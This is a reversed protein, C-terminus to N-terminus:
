SGSDIAAKIDALDEYLFAGAHNSSHYSHLRMEGIVTILNKSFDDNEWGWAVTFDKYILVKFKSLDAVLIKGVAINNDEVVTVGAIRTGDSSTFPPLMYVGSNDAKSLEMNAVEIPNLFVVVNGFFNLSRLQAVAARIADFNNPNSTHVGVLTYASAFTTIGAPSTSSLTGSLLATSVATMVEFRLENTIMDEMQDIDELIETSAKMREAVKKAVSTEAALEFSALPKLAGEAIFQANGQKNTKNVWVIVARSARGKILYDWFTPQTRVLDVVGPLIDPTPIYASGGADVGAVTMTVAAKAAAQLDIDLAPLNAASGSKITSLAGKVADSEQWAKIQGRLSLDKAAGKGGQLSAIAIGQAKLMALAGDKPDMLKTLGTIDFLPTGDEKVFAKMQELVLAKVADADMAAPLEAFRENLQKVFALSDGELGDEKLKIKNGDTRYAVSRFNQLGMRKSSIKPAYNVPAFQLFTKKM